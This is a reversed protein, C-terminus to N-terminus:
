FHAAPLQLTEAEKSYYYNRLNQVTKLKVENSSFTTKSLPLQLIGTRSLGPNLLLFPTPSQVDKLIAQTVGAKRLTGETKM